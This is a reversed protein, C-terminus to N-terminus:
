VIKRYRKGKTSGTTEIEGQEILEKLLEKIRSEKVSAVEELDSAKYWVGQQMSSLILIQKEITKKAVKKEGSKKAVKKEGSKKAVKEQKMKLVLTVQNLTTDEILEPMEWGQEEWANLITPFGSGVNDGYGVMRLMTQMRPNRARSNGGRFIQEKPIKLIGPNTIEFGEATKIVKLTGELMYDAHIVMNVCSERVARHLPTDDERVYGKLKFPKPLEATLKPLVRGLFNFVNNEWTGDYTIRDNWRVDDTKYSEDRYDMFINDCVDRVALGNGFMMLGALTLGEIGKDRDKRYGGLMELFHKDDYTNWIHEGNENQFRMRYARLTDIDVDDMTYHEIVMDDVGETNQDRFMARIEASTCHYDGEHNRKFAGTFPNTGVYVPRVQFGARPVHIVIVTIDNEIVQFVDEDKLININVKDSNITNWFDELQKSPNTIGQFVFREEPKIKKKNEDVGLIIYGGKTNAFASYSDYTSKPVNSEAKKCEVDIKEGQYIIQKLEQMDM